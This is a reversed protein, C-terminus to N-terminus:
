CMCMWRCKTQVSAQRRNRVEGFLNVYEEAEEVSLKGLVVNVKDLEGTELAEKMENSFHEYIERAEQVEPDESDVPPVSIAIVTGPEVAHLQIQEVGEPENAREAIIERARTRIRVHTDYVDKYFVEKASNVHAATIRKFFLPVGDRGLARCYQLLLAQHVCQQSRDEKGELAADFALVLLGDTEKETLIHPNKVLYELSSSYDAAKIDAFKKAAPSAEIDDDEDNNDKSAPGSKSAATSSSEAVQKYNPNLLEVTTSGGGTSPGTSPSRNIFTTDVSTQISDSTIKSSEEKELKALEEGSEKILTEVQTKHVQIEEMMATYRDESKKVAMAKNVQDLLGAMMASYTKPQNPDVRLGEPVEPLADENQHGSSEMVAQFALEGPNSTGAEVARSKLSALLAAIRKLLATHLTVEYRLAQIRQRRQQREHHIQNQKARIFSRKDVNPHVEIDSDDSLEM